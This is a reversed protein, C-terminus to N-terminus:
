QPLKPIAMWHSPKDKESFGNWRGSPLDKTLFVQGDLVLLVQQSVFDDFSIDKGNRKIVRKEHKGKPVTEIPQWM